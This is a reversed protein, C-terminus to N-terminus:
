SRPLSFSTPAPPTKWGRFTLHRGGGAICAAGPDATHSRSAPRTTREIRDPLDVAPEQQWAFRGRARGPRYSIAGHINLPHWVAHISAPM